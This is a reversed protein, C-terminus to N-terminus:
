FTFFFVILISCLNTEIDIKKNIVYKKICTEKFRHNDLNVTVGGFLLLMNPPM